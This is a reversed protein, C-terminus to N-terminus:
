VRMASSSLSTNTSVAFIAFMSCLLHSRHAQGLLLHCAGLKALLEDGAAAIACQVHAVAVREQALVTPDYDGPMPVLDVLRRERAHLAVSVVGPVPAGTAARKIRIREQAPEALLRDM